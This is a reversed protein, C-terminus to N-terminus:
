KRSLKREGNEGLDGAIRIDEFLADKLYDIV